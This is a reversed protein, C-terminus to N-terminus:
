KSQWLKGKQGCQAFWTKDRESRCESGTFNEYALAWPDKANVKPHVCRLSHYQDPRSHKCDKCFKVQM